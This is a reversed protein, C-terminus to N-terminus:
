FDSFQFENMDYSYVVLFYLTCGSKIESPFARAPERGRYPSRLPLQLCFSACLLNEQRDVFSSATESREYGGKREGGRRRRGGEWGGGGGCCRGDRRGGWRCRGLFWFRRRRVCLSSGISLGRQVGRRGFWFFFNLCRVVVGPHGRSIAGVIKAFGFETGPALQDAKTVRCNARHTLSPLLLSFWYKRNNMKKNVSDDARLRRRKKECRKSVKIKSKRMRKKM